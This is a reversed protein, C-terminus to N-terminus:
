ADGKEPAVFRFIDLNVIAVVEGGQNSYTDEQRM